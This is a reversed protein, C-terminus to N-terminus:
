GISSRFETMMVSIESSSLGEKESLSGDPNILTNVLKREPTDLYLRVTMRVATTHDIKKEESYFFESSAENDYIEPSVTVNFRIEPIREYSFRSVDKEGILRIFSKKITEIVDDTTKECKFPVMKIYFDQTGRKKGRIHTIYGDFAKPHAHVYYVFEKFISDKNINRGSYKKSYDPDTIIGDAFNGFLMRYIDSAKSESFIRGSTSNIIPYSHSIDGSIDTLTLRASKGYSKVIPYFARYLEDIQKCFLRFPIKNPVFDSCNIVSVEPDDYLNFSQIFKKLNRFANKVEDM